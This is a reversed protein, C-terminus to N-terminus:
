ESILASQITWEKSDKRSHGRRGRQDRASHRNGPSQEDWASGREDHQADNLHSNMEAPTELGMRDAPTWVDADFGHRALNGALEPLDARLAAAVEPERTRVAVHVEGGRERVNIEVADAPTEGIRLTV